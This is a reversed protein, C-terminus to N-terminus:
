YVKGKFRFCIKNSEYLVESVRRKGEEKGGRERREYDSHSRVM